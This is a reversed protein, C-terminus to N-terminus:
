AHRRVAYRSTVVRWGDEFQILISNLRGRALVACRANHREAGGLVRRWRFVHDGM